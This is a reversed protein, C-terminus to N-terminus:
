PTTDNCISCNEGATECEYGANYRQWPRDLRCDCNNCRSEDASAHCSERDEPPRYLLLPHRVVFQAAHAAYGLQSYGRGYGPPKDQCAQQGVVDPRSLNESKGTYEHHYRCGYAEANAINTFQLRSNLLRRVCASCVPLHDSVM